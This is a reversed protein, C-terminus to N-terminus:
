IDSAENDEQLEERYDLMAQSILGLTASLDRWVQAVPINHSLCFDILFSCVQYVYDPHYIMSFFGFNYTRYIDQITLKGEAFNRTINDRLQEFKWNPDFDKNASMFRLCANDHELQFVRQALYAANGSAVEAEFQDASEERNVLATLRDYAAAAEVDVLRLSRVTAKLTTHM